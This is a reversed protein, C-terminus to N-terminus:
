CFVPLPPPGVKFQIHQTESAEKQKVYHEHTQHKSISLNLEDKQAALTSGQFKLIRTQSKIAQTSAELSSIATKLEEESEPVYINDFSDPIITNSQAQRIEKWSVKDSVIM